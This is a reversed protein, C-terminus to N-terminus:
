AKGAAKAAAKRKREEEKHRRAEKKENKLRKKDQEAEVLKTRAESAISDLPAFHAVWLGKAIQDEKWRKGVDALADEFRAVIQVKTGDDIFTRAGGANNARMAFILQVRDGKELTHRALQIKHAMDGEAATWGVQIEKDEAALRRRVKQRAEFEREKLREEELNVIKVVPPDAAVLVVANVDTDIQALLRNLAVPEGLHGDEGVMQVQRFPIRQNRAGVVRENYAAAEAAAAQERKRLVWPNGHGTPAAAYTRALAPLAPALAPRSYTPTCSACRVSRAARLVSTIAVRSM